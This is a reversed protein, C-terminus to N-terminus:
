CLWYKTENASKLAINIHNSFDRRSSGAQGEIINAGISTASRILQKVMVSGATDQWSINSTNKIVNVSFIYARHKAEM